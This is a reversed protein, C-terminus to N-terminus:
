TSSTSTTGTGHGQCFIYKGNNRRRAWETFGKQKKQSMWLLINHHLSYLSTVDLTWYYMYVLVQPFIPKGKERLVGRPGKSVYMLIVFDWFICLIMNTRPIQFRQQQKWFSTFINPVNEFFHSDPAYIGVLMMWIQLQIKRWNKVINPFVHQKHPFLTCVKSCAAMVFYPSKSFHSVYWYESWFVVVM